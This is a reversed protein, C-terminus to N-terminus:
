RLIRKLLEYCNFVCIYSASPKIPNYYNFHAIVISSMHVFVASNFNRVGNKVFEGRRELKYIKKFLVTSTDPYLASFISSKEWYAAAACRREKEGYVVIRHAM